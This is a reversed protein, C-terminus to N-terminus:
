QDLSQAGFIEPALVHNRLKPHTSLCATSSCNNCASATGYPATSLLLSLIGAHTARPFHSDEGDISCPKRPFTRGGRTLRPRLHTRFPYGISLQNINWCWRIAILVSAPVCSSLAAMSISLRPAYMLGNPLSTRGVCLLLTHPFQYHYTTCSDM